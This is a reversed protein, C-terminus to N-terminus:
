PPATRPRRHRRHEHSVEDGEAGVRLGKDQDNIALTGERDSQAGMAEELASISIIDSDSGNGITNYPEFWQGYQQAVRKVDPGADGRQGFAGARQQSAKRAGGRM